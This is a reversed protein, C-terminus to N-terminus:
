FNVTLDLYGFHSDGRCSVNPANKLFRGKALWAAGGEVRLRQPLIWHRVRGEFQVGAWRGSAGTRDQVGTAAFSDVPSNLWLARTMLAGDTRKSPTVEVRAGVSMLNSRTVAGYLSTPGFDGRPAGFLPDFRTLKAPDRDDGTAIDFQLSPRVSWGDTGKRGIEVHILYAEVKRDRQDDPRASARAFGVQGIAEVEFDLKGRAPARSARAGLITLRRDRTPYEPSDKEELHLAYAEGLAGAFLGVKTFSLGYLTVDGSMRDLKVGNAHVDSPKNPLRISPMTWFGVLRDEAKSTWEFVAGTYSNVSNPFDPEAVQRGSGIELTVRGLTLSAASGASFMDGLDAALYAQVPELSNVEGVGATSNAHQGAARADRLEAGIRIPGTDYEAFLIARHSWMFDNEPGSARAQNDLVEVRSRYSGRLTLGAPAGALKLLPNVKDKAASPAAYLAMAAAACTGLRGAGAHVSKKLVQFM